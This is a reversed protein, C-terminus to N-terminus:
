RALVVPPEAAEAEAPQPPAPEASWPEPRALIAAIGGRQSLEATPLMTHAPVGHRAAMLLITQWVNITECAAQCYPCRAHPSAFLAGCRPCRAGADGRDPELVLYGPYNVQGNRLADIVEQPGCVVNHSERIRRAVESKLWQDHARMAQEIVARTVNELSPRRGIWPYPGEHVVAAALFAPLEARTAELIEHPGLLVIGGYREEEWARAIERVLEKRYHLIHDERHREITAQQKGWTEGAQRQRKPVAEDIESILHVAGLSAEYIRGRHSDTHVVLYRRHRHLLELLPVLYPEEDVVLRNAVPVGLAFARYLDRGSASFVAMGRARRAQPSALARQIVDIDRLFAGRADPDVIQEEIRKVENKLHLRWESRVGRGVSTDAYCSVVMDTKRPRDLLWQADRFSAPKLTVIAM